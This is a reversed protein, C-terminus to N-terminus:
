QLNANHLTARSLNAQVLKTQSLNAHTLDVARLTAGMLNVGNVDILFFDREGAQYRSLLEDPNM